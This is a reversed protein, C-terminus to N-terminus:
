ATPAGAQRDQPGEDVGELRVRPYVVGADSLAAALLRTSALRHRRRLVENQIRENERRLRRRLERVIEAADRDEGGAHLVM